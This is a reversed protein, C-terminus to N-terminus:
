VPLPLCALTAVLTDALCRQACALLPIPHWRVFGAQAAGCCSRPAHWGRRGTCGEAGCHVAGPGAGRCRTLWDGGVYGCTCPLTRVKEGLDDMVALAQRGFWVVGQQFGSQLNSVGTDVASANLAAQSHVSAQLERNREAYEAVQRSLAEVTALSAEIMENQGASAAVSGAKKSARTSHTHLLSAAASRPSSSRRGKTRVKRRTKRIDSQLRSITRQQIM